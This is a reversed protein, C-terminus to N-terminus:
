KRTKCLPLQSKHSYSDVSAKTWLQSLKASSYYRYRSPGPSVTVATTTVLLVVPQVTSTSTWALVVLLPCQASWAGSLCYYSHFRFNHFQRATIGTYLSYFWLITGTSTSTSTCYYSTSYETYQHRLPAAAAEKYDSFVRFSLGLFPLVLLLPSASSTASNKGSSSNHILDNMWDSESSVCTSAGYTYYTRAGGWSVPALVPLVLVV